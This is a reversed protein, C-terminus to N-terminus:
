KALPSKIQFLGEGELKAFDEDSMGALESCIYYADQGALPVPRPAYPTKTLKFPPAPWSWEGIEAHPQMQFFGRERFAPCENIDKVDHWFGAPIGASQLITMVQERSREATWEEVIKNLEDENKKRETLTAFRSDNALDSKGIIKCFAQWQQDNFVGIACWRDDGQCQYVAHPAARDLSNGIREQQRQNATWDLLMPGLCQLSVESMPLDICQGKGTRQRYLLASIVISVAAFGTIYDLYPSVVFSIPERDPYGTINTFGLMSQLINGWAPLGAYPGTQGHGSIRLMIIDPKIKKIEEYGLGLDELTGPTFQEVVIDARAILRKALDLGKPHKLNFIIAYKSSSLILYAGSRNLGPKGGAFPTYMRIEVAFPNEVSVVEAGYDGLCKTCLPGAIINSLDVVKVGELAQRKEM